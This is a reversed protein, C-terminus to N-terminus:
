VMYFNAVVASRYFNFLLEFISASLREKVDYNSNYTSVAVLFYLIVFDKPINPLSLGLTYIFIFNLMWLVGDAFWHTAYQYYKLIQACVNTVPLKHFGTIIKYLSLVGTFLGLLKALWTSALWTSTLADYWRLIVGLWRM